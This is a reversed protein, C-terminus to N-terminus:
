LSQIERGGRHITVTPRPNTCTAAVLVCLDRVVALTCAPNCDVDIPVPDAPDWCVTFRVPGTGDAIRRQAAMALAALLGGHGAHTTLKAGDETVRDTLWDIVGADVAEGVLTALPVREPQRTGSIAGHTAATM